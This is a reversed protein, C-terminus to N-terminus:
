RGSAQSAKQLSALTEAKGIGIASVVGAGTIYIPELM